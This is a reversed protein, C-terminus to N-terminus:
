HRSQSLPSDRSLEGRDCDCCQLLHHSVTSFESNKSIMEGSPLNMMRYPDPSQFDVHLIYSYLLTKTFCPLRQNSTDPECDTGKFIMAYFFDKNRRM